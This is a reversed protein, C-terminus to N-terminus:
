YDNMNLLLQVFVFIFKTIEIHTFLVEWTPLIMFIPTLIVRYEGGYFETNTYYKILYAEFLYNHRYFFNHIQEKRLLLSKYM